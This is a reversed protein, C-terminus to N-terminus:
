DRHRLTAACRRVSGEPPLERRDRVRGGCPRDGDEAHALRRPTPRSRTTSAARAAAPGRRAHKWLKFRTAADATEPLLKQAENLQSIANNFAYAELAGRGGGDHLRVGQGPRRGQPLPRGSRGRRRGPGHSAATGAAGRSASAPEPAADGYLDAYPLERLLDHVFEVQGPNGTERFVRRPLSCTSRTSSTRSASTRCSRASCTSTWWRGSRGGRRGGGAPGQAAAGALRLRM